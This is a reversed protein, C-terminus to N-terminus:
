SLKDKLYEEMEVMTEQLLEAYEGAVCDRAASRILDDPMGARKQVKIVEDIKKKMRDTLM